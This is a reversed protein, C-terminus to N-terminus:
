PKPQKILIHQENAPSGKPALALGELKVRTKNSQEAFARFADERGWWEAIQFRYDGLSLWQDGTTREGANVKSFVAVALLAWVVRDPMHLEGDALFWHSKDGESETCKFRLPVDDGHAHSCRLVEYIIEALDPNLNNRLPVNSFRTENLNLGPGIMPEVIWYYHRLCSVYRKGVQKIAPFLRRATADVAICAHLIAADFNGAGHDDISHLVHKSVRM